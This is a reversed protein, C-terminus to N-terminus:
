RVMAPFMETVCLSMSFGIVVTGVMVGPFEFGIVAGLVVVDGNGDDDYAPLLPPYFFCLNRYVYYLFLLQM